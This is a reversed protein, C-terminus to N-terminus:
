VEGGQADESPLPPQHSGPAPEIPALGARALFDCLATLIANKAALETKARGDTAVTGGNIWLRWVWPLRDRPQGVPPFVAGFTVQGCVLLRRDGEYGPPLFRIPDAMVDDGEWGVTASRARLATITQKLATQEVMDEYGQMVWGYQERYRGLEAELEAVRAQAADREARQEPTAEDYIRRAEALRSILDDTM